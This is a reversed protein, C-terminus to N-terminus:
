KQTGPHNRHGERHGELIAEIDLLPPRGLRAGRQRAAALGLVTNEHIVDRQFEAM